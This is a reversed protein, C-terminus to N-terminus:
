SKAALVMEAVTQNTSSLAEHILEADTGGRNHQVFLHFSHLDSFRLVDELKVEHEDEFRETTVIARICVHKVTGWRNALNVLGQITRAKWRFTRLGRNNPEPLCRPDIVEVQLLEISKISALLWPEWIHLFGYLTPSFRLTRSSLFHHM